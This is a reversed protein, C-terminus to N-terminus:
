LGKSRKESEDFTLVGWDHALLMMPRGSQKDTKDFHKAMESLVTENGFQGVWDGGVNTSFEIEKVIGDEILDKYQNIKEEILVAAEKTHRKYFDQWEWWPKDNVEEVPFKYSFESCDSDLLVSSVGEVTCVSFDLQKIVYDDEM